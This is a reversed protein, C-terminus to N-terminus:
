PGGRKSLKRRAFAVPSRRRIRGVTPALRSAVRDGFLLVPSVIMSFLGFLVVLPLIASARAATLTM